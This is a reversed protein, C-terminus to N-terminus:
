LTGHYERERQNFATILNKRWALMQGFGAHTDATANAGHRRYSILPEELFYVGGHKEALLGLWQDHMPIFPPFPLALEMLEREFAMCAGMYSNKLLNKWFGPGSKRLHFYSPATEQLNENVVQADHIVLAAGSHAFAARVRAMKHPMWVDDHDSLFIRENRTAALACEFNKIVGQGPGDIVRICPAAAPPPAAAAAVAPPPVAAEAVAPPPVASEAVAAACGAQLADAALREAIARTDDSSPDVSIVIEDGQELQPLISAVQCALYESGDKAALAVSVSM